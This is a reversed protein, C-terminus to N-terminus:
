TAPVHWGSQWDRRLGEGRGHFSRGSLTAALVRDARFHRIASRLECWAVLNVTEDYFILALPLVPRNTREGAADCYDLTLGSEERIARRALALDLGGDRPRAMGWVHLARDSLLRRLPAPVAAAIKEEISRATAGLAGDGDRALLGLAVILAETEDFTFMMPPLTFGPRLMYGVGREGEVPVRMAQLAAIDRYVTRKDVELREALEAATVVGRALTFIQVIEFLRSMKRM